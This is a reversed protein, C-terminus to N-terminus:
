FTIRSVDFCFTSLGASITSGFVSSCSKVLNPGNGKLCEVLSVTAVYKYFFINCIKLLMLNCEIDDISCLHTSINFKFKGCIIM